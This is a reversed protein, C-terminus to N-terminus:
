LSTSGLIFQPNSAPNNVTFEVTPSEPIRSQGIDYDTVPFELVAPPAPSRYFQYIGCGLLLVGAFYM